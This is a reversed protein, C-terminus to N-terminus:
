FKNLRFIKKQKNVELFNFTQKSQFQFNLFKPRDTSKLFEESLKWLTSLFDERDSQKDCLWVLKKQESTENKLLMEFVLNDNNAGIQQSPKNTENSDIPAQSIQKIENLRWTLRSKIESTKDNM